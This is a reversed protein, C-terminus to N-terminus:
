ELYTTVAETDGQKITTFLNALKNISNNNSFYRVFEMKFDNFNQSKVALSQYWADLTNKLFYPIAQLARANNWGNATIAKEINNLWIQVNDEEGTFNDLKAIPTYAMPDLNPQQPPPNILLQDIIIVPPLNQQNSLEPNPNNQKRTKLSQTKILLNKIKRNKKRKKKLYNGCSLLELTRYPGLLDEKWQKSQFQFRGVTLIANSISADASSINITSGPIYHYLPATPSEVRHKKWSPLQIGKPTAAPTQIRGKGKDAYTIPFQQQTYREITTGGLCETIKNNVYFNFVSEAPYHNSNLRLQQSYQQFLFKVFGLHNAGINESEAM